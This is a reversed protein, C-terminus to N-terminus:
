KTQELFGAKVRGLLAPDSFLRTAADAFAHASMLLKEQAEASNVHPLFAAEHPGCKGGGVGMNGYLTPARHSVNGVDTSGAMEPVDSFDTIGAKTLCDFMLENLVPNVLLDDYSNEFAGINLKAGTMLAAGRACNKVKETVENLYARKEARVYFECVGREPIINAAKGGDTIIGHIRVDPALQQRLASIGAFTLNVADLANIGNQPYAAAHTARGIFEFRVSDMALARARLNTSDSLHLQFTADIDDFVGHKVLDIKRGFTEEAPTGFVVITGKVPPTQRSLLLAAGVTSAAIWNHGCAHAPKMEPGYGPLADYEALFGVKPGPQDGFEARFATPLGCYPYEVRFGSDKLLQVLYASSVFEQDGLEPNSFIFESIDLIQKETPSLRENM